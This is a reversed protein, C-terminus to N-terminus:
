GAPANAAYNNEPKDQLIDNTGIMMLIVQPQYSQIWGDIQEEIQGIRWGSFGAHGSGEPFGNSGGLSSPGVFNVNAGYDLYKEYLGRKYGATGSTSGVGATISDGVTMVRVGGSIDGSVGNTREYLSFSGEIGDWGTYGEFSTNAILNVM